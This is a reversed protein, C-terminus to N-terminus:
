PRRIVERALARVAVIGIGPAARGEIMGEWNIVLAGVPIAVFTM